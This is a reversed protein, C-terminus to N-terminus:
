TVTTWLCTRLLLRFPPPPFLDVGVLAPVPSTTAFLLVGSAALRLSQPASEPRPHSVRSCWLQERSPIVVFSGCDPFLKRTPVAPAAARPRLKALHHYCFKFGPGQVSWLALGRAKLSSLEEENFAKLCSSTTSVAGASESDSESPSLFPCPLTGYLLSGSLPSSLSRFPGPTAPVARDM